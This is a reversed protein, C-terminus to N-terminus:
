SHRSAEQKIINELDAMTIDPVDQSANQQQIYQQFQQQIQQEQEDVQMLQNIIQEEQQRQVNDFHRGFTMLKNLDFVTPSQVKDSPAFGFEYLIQLDNMLIQIYQEITFTNLNQALDRSWTSILKVMDNVKGLTQANKYYWICADIINRTPEDHFIIILWHLLFLVQTEKPFLAGYQRSILFPKTTQNVMNAFALIDSQLKVVPTTRLKHSIYVSPTDPNTLRQHLFYLSWTQCYGQVGGASEVLVQPGSFPCIEDPRFVRVNEGLLEKFADALLTDVHDQYFHKDGHPDYREIAWYGNERRWEIILLNSHMSNGTKDNLVMQAFKYRKDKCKELHDRLVAKSYILRGDVYVIPTSSLGCADKYTSDALATTMMFPFITAEGSPRMIPSNPNKQFRRFDTPSKVKWLNALEPPIFNASDQQQESEIIAPTTDIRLNRSM